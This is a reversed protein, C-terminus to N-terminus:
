QRARETWHLVLTSCQVMRSPELHLEGFTKALSDPAAPDSAANADPRTRVYLHTTTVPHVVTVDDHIRNRLDIEAVDRVIQGALGPELANIIQQSDCLVAAAVVHVQDPEM